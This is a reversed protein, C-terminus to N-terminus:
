IKRMMQCCEAKIEPQLFRLSPKENSRL